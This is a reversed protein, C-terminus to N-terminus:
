SLKELLAIVEAKSYSAKRKSNISRVARSVKDQHARSLDTSFHVASEDFARMLAVPEIGLARSIRANVTSPYVQKKPHGAEESVWQYLTSHPIQSLEALRRYSIAKKLRHDEITAQWASHTRKKQTGIARGM